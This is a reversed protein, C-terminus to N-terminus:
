KCYDRSEDMWRGRKEMLAKFFVGHLALNSGEPLPHEARDVEDLRKKEARQEPTLTYPYQWKAYAM